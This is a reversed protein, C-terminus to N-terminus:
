VLGKAVLPHVLRNGVRVMKVYRKNNAQVFRDAWRCNDPEYNGFPDVRDISTGAPREGMDELFNEFKLWHDCVKIGRGGYDEWADNNPNTCRQIMHDWSQYTRDCMGKHRYGHKLRATSGHCGCSVTHRNQLNGSRVIVYEGCKCEGWWMSNRSPKTRPPSHLAIIFIDNIQQGEFRKFNGAPKM